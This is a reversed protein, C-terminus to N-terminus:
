RLLHLMSRYRSLTLHLSPTGLATLTVLSSSRDKRAKERHRSRRKDLRMLWSRRTGLHSESTGGDTDEGTATVRSHRPSVKRLEQGGARESAAEVRGDLDLAISANRHSAILSSAKKVIEASSAENVSGSRDYHWSRSQLCSVSVCKVVGCGCVVQGVTEDAM